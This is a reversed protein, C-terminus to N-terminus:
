SWTVDCLDRRARDCNSDGVHTYCLSAVGTAWMAGCEWMIVLLEWLEMIKREQPYALEASLVTALYENEAPLSDATGRVYDLVPGVLKEAVTRTEPLTDSSLFREFRAEARSFPGNGREVETGQACFHQLSPRGEPMTAAIGAERGMDTRGVLAVTRHRCNSLQWWHVLLISVAAPNFPDNDRYWIVAGLLRSYVEALPKEDLSGQTLSPIINSVEACSIDAGLDIWDHIVCGLGTIAAMAEGGGADYYVHCFAADALKYRALRGIDNWVVVCPRSSVPFSDEIRTKQRLCGYNCGKVIRIDTIHPGTSVSTEAAATVEDFAGSLSNAMEADAFGVSYDFVFASDMIAWLGSISGGYVGRDFGLAMSFISANLLPGECEEREMIGVTAADLSIAVGSLKPPLPKRASCWSPMEVTRVEAFPLHEATGSKVVRNRAALLVAADSLCGAACDVADAVRANRIWSISACAEVVGGTQPTDLRRPLAVTTVLTQSIDDYQQSFKSSGSEVPGMDHSRLLWAPAGDASGVTAGEASVNIKRWTSRFRITANSDQASSEKTRDAWHSIVPLCDSAPSRSLGGSVAPKTVLDSIAQDSGEKLPPLKMQKLANNISIQSLSSLRCSGLNGNIETHAPDLPSSCEPTSVFDKVDRCAMRKGFTQQRTAGPDVLGGTLAMHPLKTVRAVYPM